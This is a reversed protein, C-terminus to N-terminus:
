KEGVQKIQMHNAAGRTPTTGSVLVIRDGQRVTTRKLLMQEADAALDAIHSKFVIQFATVNFALSLMNVVNVDPSFAFVPAPTRIKSMYLATDGSLTFVCIPIHSLEASAWAAAEYLAKASVRTEGYNRIREHQLYSSQEASKAIQAMMQVAEKPYAGVATEGSLMVADVGDFIANAVDSSEARTPLPHEIMSELMQTAVIVPKQAVAARRILNKQLIPVEYPSAEVGLDGRAVMIGDAVELIEDIAAAAEPKEIKAIIKIDPRRDGMAERLTRVDAASRVFSLAILQIDLTLIFDLDVRDKKTLASIRLPVNPLNVGKRSSYTGGSIVICRIKGSIKDVHIVQLRVAGDNLVVFNGESIENALNQYDISILTESCVVPAATLMVETDKKLFISRDEPTKGTRIKPGQLDALIGVPQELTASMKRITQVNQEHTEHDGHSFNLRFVNVGETILSRIMEADASAPGVTAVIKTKKPVPNM